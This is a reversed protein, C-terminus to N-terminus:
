LISPGDLCASTQMDQQITQLKRHQKEIKTNGSHIFQKERGMQRSMASGSSPLINRNLITLARLSIPKCARRSRQRRWEAQNSRLEPSCSQLQTPLKVKYRHVQQAKLQASGYLTRQHNTQSEELMCRIVVLYRSIM